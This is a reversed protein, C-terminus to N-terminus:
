CFIIRLKTSPLDKSRPLRRSATFSIQLNMGSTKSPASFPGLFPADTETFLQNLEVNKVIDQFSSARVVNTPISFSYGADAGQKVVAKSGSFCHLIVKSAKVNSSYIADLCPQEAARSHVIVPKQVRKALDLLQHFLKLQVDLQGKVWYNDLGIEGIAVVGNKEIKILKEITKLEEGADFPQVPLPPQEMLGLSVLYDEPHIGLAPKIEPYKGALKLVRQNSEPNTGNSVMITVNNKVANEVVKHLDNKFHPADLHTHVDILTTMM